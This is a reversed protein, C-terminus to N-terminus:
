NSNKAMFGFGTINQTVVGLRECFEAASNNKPKAFPCATQSRVAERVPAFSTKDPAWSMRLLQMGPQQDTTALQDPRVYM